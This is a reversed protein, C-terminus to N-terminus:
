PLPTLIIAHGEDPSSYNSAEGGFINKAAKVQYYYITGPTVSTDDYSTSTQWGSIASPKIIGGPGRYVQYHTADSVTNWTIQVKNILNDTASVGTPADLDIPPMVSAFGSDYASFNSADEGSSSRAAKVQYYYITGPTVSTDDYSTSTQWGSIASPKIIGGLGRYVQYHTADSVINWTIKVKDTYSGDSASVNTPPFLYISLEIAHGTDPSSYDSADDGSSSTAAKVWYYYTIAGSVSTDDYFIGTQWGSLATKTGLLADARYVKYHTAGTVM